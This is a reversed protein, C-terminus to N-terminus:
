RCSFKTMLLSYAVFFFSSFLLFFFFSFLFFSFMKVRQAEFIISCKKAFETYAESVKLLGGKLRILKVAENERLKDAVACCLL